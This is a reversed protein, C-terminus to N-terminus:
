VVSKRDLGIIIMADYWCGGIGGIWTSSIIDHWWGDSITMNSVYLYRGLNGNWRGRVIRLRRLYFVRFCLRGGKAQNEKAMRCSGGILTSKWRGLLKMERWTGEWGRFSHSVLGRRKVLFFWGTRLPLIASSFWAFPPLNVRCKQFALIICPPFALQPGLNPAMPINSLPKITIHKVLIDTVIWLDTQFM